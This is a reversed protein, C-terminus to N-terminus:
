QTKSEHCDGLGGKRLTFCVCAGQTMMKNDIPLFWGWQANRHTIVSKYAAVIFTRSKANM